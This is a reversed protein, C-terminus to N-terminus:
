SVIQLNYLITKPPVQIWLTLKGSQVLIQIVENTWHITTTDRHVVGGWGLFLSARGLFLGPIKSCLVFPPKRFHHYGWFVGFHDNKTPFGLITPYWKLFGGYLDNTVFRRVEVPVNPLSEGHLSTMTSSCSKEGMDRHFASKKGRWM